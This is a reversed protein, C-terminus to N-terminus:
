NWGVLFSCSAPITSKMRLTLARPVMRSASSTRPKLAWRSHSQVTATSPWDAVKNPQRPVAGTDRAYWWCGSALITERVVIEPKAELTAALSCGQPLPPASPSRVGVLPAAEEALVLEAYRRAGDHM